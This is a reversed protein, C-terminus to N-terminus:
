AAPTPAPTAKRRTFARFGDEAKEVCTEFGDKAYAACAARAEQEAAYAKGDWMFKKGDRMLKQM